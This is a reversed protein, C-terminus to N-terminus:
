ILFFVLFDVPNCVCFKSSLLCADVGELFMMRTSCSHRRQVDWLGYPCSSLMMKMQM